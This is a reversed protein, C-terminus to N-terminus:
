IKVEVYVPSLKDKDKSVSVNAEVRMEGKEM